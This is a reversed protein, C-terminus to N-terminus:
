QRCSWSLSQGWIYCLGSIAPGGTATMTQRTIAFGEPPEGTGVYWHSKFCSLGPRPDSPPPTFLTVFVISLQSMVCSSVHSIFYRGQESRHNFVSERTVDSDQFITSSPIIRQSTFFFKLFSSLFFSCKWAIDECAFTVM